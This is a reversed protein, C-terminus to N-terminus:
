TLCGFVLVSYHGRLRDTSFPEGREDFVTVSPLTTGVQPLNFNARAGGPQAFSPGALLCLLTAALLPALTRM